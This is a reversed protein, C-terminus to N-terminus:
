VFSFRKKLVESWHSIQAGPRSFRTEPAGLLLSLLTASAGSVRYNREEVTHSSPREGGCLSFCPPNFAKPHSLLGLIYAKVEPMLLIRVPHLTHTWSSPRYTRTIHGIQGEHYIQGEHGRRKAPINTEGSVRAAVGRRWLKRGHNGRRRAVSLPRNM